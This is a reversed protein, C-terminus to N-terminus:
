SSVGDDVADKADRQAYSFSPPASSATSPAPKADAFGFTIVFSAAVTPLLIVFSRGKEGAYARKRSGRPRKPSFKENSGHRVASVAWIRLGNILRLVRNRWYRFAM